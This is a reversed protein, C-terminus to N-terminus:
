NIKSDKWFLPQAKWNKSNQWTLKTGIELIRFQFSRKQGSSTSRNCFKSRNWLKLCSHFIKRVRQHDVEKWYGSPVRAEFWPFTKKENETTTPNSFFCTQYSLRPWNSKRPFSIFQRLMVSIHKWGQSPSNLERVLCLARLTFKRICNGMVM